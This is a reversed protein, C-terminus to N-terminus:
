VILSQISAGLIGKFVLNTLLNISLQRQADVRRVARMSSMLDGMPTDAARARAATTKAASAM